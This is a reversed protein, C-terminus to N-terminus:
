QSEENVPKGAISVINICYRNGMNDPLNHGLHTGDVSVIEGDDLVRVYDWNVESDRFSPWGENTSETMFDDWTRDYGPIQFLKKGTNSDYFVVPHNNTTPIVTRNETVDDVFTTSTLWYESYEAYKRNYNCIRDATSRDCGWRLRKQVPTNSTGHKKPKMISEDGPVCKTSENCFRNNGDRLQMTTMARLNREHIREERQERERRQEQPIAKRQIHNRDRHNEGLPTADNNVILCSLLFFIPISLRM